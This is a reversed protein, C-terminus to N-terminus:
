YLSENLIGKSTNYQNYDPKHKEQKKFNDIRITVPVDRVLAWLPITQDPNISFIVVVSMFDKSLKTRLAEPIVETRAGLLKVQANFAVEDNVIVEVHTNQNVQKMKSVPVYGVVSLNNKKLDLSQLQVISEKKFVTTLDPVDIKIVIATDAVIRYRLLGSKMIKEKDSIEELLIGDVSTQIRDSAKDVNKITNWLVGLKRRAVKLQEETEVLEKELELKHENHTLGFSINHDEIELQRKLEKIRVQLLEIDQREMNYQLRLDRGKVVIDPAQGMREQYDFNSLYVYSYLTDGPMVIDGEQVHTELLFLDEMARIDNFDTRMYGDYETYRVANFVYLVIVCLIVLLIGTFVWQQKNIKRKREKIISEIQKEEIEKSYKFDKM